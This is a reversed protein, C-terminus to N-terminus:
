SMDYHKYKYLVAENPHGRHGRNQKMCNVETLDGVSNCEDSFVRLYETEADSRGSQNAWVFSKVGCNVGLRVKELGPMQSFCCKVFIDSLLRTSSKNTPWIVARCFQQPLFFLTFMKKARQLYTMEVLGYLTPTLSDVLAASNCLTLDQDQIWVRQTWWRGWVNRILTGERCINKHKASLSWKELGLTVTGSLHPNWSAKWWLTMWPSVWFCRCLSDREPWDSQPSSCSPGPCSGTSETFQRTAGCSEPCASGSAAQLTSPNFLAAGNLVYIFCSHRFSGISQHANFLLLLLATFVLLAHRWWALRDWQIWDLQVSNCVGM